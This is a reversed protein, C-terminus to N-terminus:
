SRVPMTHAANKMSEFRVVDEGVFVQTWVVTVIMVSIALISSRVM